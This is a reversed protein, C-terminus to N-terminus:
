RANLRQLDEIWRATALKIWALDAASQYASYVSISLAKGRLSLLTTTSLLYQPPAHEDLDPVRTGQLVSVVTTDRRLEGLLSTKGRPRTDLYKKIDGQPAPAGLGRLADSVFADFQRASVEEDQLALPTVAIMFRGLEPQDGQMFARLDADSIAFLLIRNSASTLSEALEQLRPSGIFGTDAFGPPADLGIRADGVPVAFPAAWAPAAALLLAALWVRM